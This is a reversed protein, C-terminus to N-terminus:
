FKRANWQKLWEPATTMYYTSTIFNGGENEFWYAADGRRGAMLIASRDKMSVGVVKSQPSDRKLLDGVTFGIFNTPSAGRGQGGVPQQVPDDVVNISKKLLPDYWTNAVIGSHSAHRGSLIVAHGPGTETNAHRYKAESFVAGQDLLRRFGGKFLPGFRTLYDFRMQDVSIVLVLKPKAIPPEGGLLFSAIAFLLVVPALVHLKLYM